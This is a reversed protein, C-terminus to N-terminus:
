APLNEALVRLMNVSTIKAIEQRSFGRKGL